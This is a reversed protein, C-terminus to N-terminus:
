ITNRLRQRVSRHVLLPVFDDFHAGAILDHLREEVDHEIAEIPATPFEAHLYRPLQEIKKAATITLQM